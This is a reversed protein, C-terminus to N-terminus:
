SASLDRRKILEPFNNRINGAATSAAWAEMEGVPYPYLLPTLDTPDSVEPDLWTDVAHGELIVPM